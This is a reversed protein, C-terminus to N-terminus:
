FLLMRQESKAFKQEMLITTSLVGLICYSSALVLQFEAALFHDDCKDANLIRLIPSLINYSASM